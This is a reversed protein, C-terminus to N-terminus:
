TVFMVYCAAAMLVPSLITLAYSLVFLLRNDPKQTLLIRVIYGISEMAAAVVMAVWVWARYRIWQLFTAFFVLTYLVAAVIAAGQSPDFKYRSEADPM